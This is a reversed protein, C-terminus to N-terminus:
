YRSTDTLHHPHVCDNRKTWLWNDIKAAPINYQESIEHGALITAARLAKEITSDSPFEIYMGIAKYLDPHYKLIGVKQMVRPVQYDAFVTLNSIDIPTETKNNLNM